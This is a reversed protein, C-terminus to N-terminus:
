FFCSKETPNEAPHEVPSETPNEAPNEAPSETANETSLSTKKVLTYYIKELTPTWTESPSFAM